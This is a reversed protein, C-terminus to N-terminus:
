HLISQLLKWNFVSRYEKETVSGMNISTSSPTWEKWIRLRKDKAMKEATRYKDVGQSVIGMSWDVCRAFGEKLLSETINGNQHPFFLVCICTLDHVIMRRHSIPHNYWCNIEQGLISWISNSM